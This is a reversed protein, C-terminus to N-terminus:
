GGGGGLSHKQLGGSKEHDGISSWGRRHFSLLVGEVPITQNKNTRAKWTHVGHTHTRIIPYPQTVGGGKYAFGSGRRM